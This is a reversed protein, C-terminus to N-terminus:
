KIRYLYLTHSRGEGDDEVEEIKDAQWAHFPFDHAVVRAGKRLQKSLIPTLKEVAGPLLYITVVDASSYDQKLVDGHVIRANKELGQKKITQSSRFVLEEELEVGVANAKFKQAGMIVIRGDGSGLDFMKEGPKLEALTLMREVIGEPSPYYPALKEGKQEQALACAATVLSLTIRFIM